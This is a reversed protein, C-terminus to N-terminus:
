KKQSLGQGVKSEAKFGTRGDPVRRFLNSVSLIRKYNLYRLLVKHLETRKVVTDHDLTDFGFLLGSAADDNGVRGLFLGGLAFHDGDPWAASSLPLSIGISMWTPSRTSNPLHDPVSTLISPWSSNIMFSLSMM